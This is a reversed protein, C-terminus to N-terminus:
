QRPSYQVSVLVSGELEQVSIKLEGSENQGFFFSLGEETGQDVLEYGNATLYGQFTNVNEALSKASTYSIIFETNAGEIGAAEFGRFDAAGDEFPFDAPFAAKIETESKDEPAEATSQPATQEPQQGTLAPKIQDWFVVGLAIIIVAIIIALTNKNM